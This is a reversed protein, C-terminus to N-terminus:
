GRVPDAWRNGACLEDCFLLLSICLWRARMKFQEIEMVFYWSIPPKHLLIQSDCSRLGCTHSYPALVTPKQHPSKRTFLDDGKRKKMHCLSFPPPTPLTPLFMGTLSGELVEEESPM